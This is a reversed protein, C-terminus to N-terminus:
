AAAGFIAKARQGMGRPLKGVIALAPGRELMAAFAARLADADVADLQAQREAPARVRGLALLDLAAEELRRGPKEQLRLSSVTAQSHARELDIATITRAQEHLLRRLAVLCDDVQEPSTSVELVFQGCAHLVDASCAAYYVLGRRERLEDMMPSSMGEGFLAAALTAVGDDHQRGHVPFGLVAHTQSHGDLRRAAIGGRWVPTEIRNETGRAVAGFGAEAAAVIADHDVAGAAAVVLNAATTQRQMQALLDARTFREINRRTGIVPMAMAQTGYCERDFLRYATAMPDDEDDAYEHLLVGRERELETEPFRPALLIDALMSVFATAHAAAGRMHFASHDKDTHANVEAGLREADLNIRRADRTASGKFVMHEVVHGIGNLAPSEHASGSRLFVSVGATRLHPLAITLVRLGNALTTIRTDADNLSTPDPSALAGRATDRPADM